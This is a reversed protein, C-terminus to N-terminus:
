DLESKFVHSVEVYFFLLGCDLCRYECGFYWPLNIQIEEGLKVKCMPKPKDQLNKPENEIDCEEGNASNDENQRITFNGLCPERQLKIVPIKQWLIPKPNSEM